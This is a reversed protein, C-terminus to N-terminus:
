TRNPHRDPHLFWGIPRSLLMCLTITSEELHSLDPRGCKGMWVSPILPPSICLRAYRLLPSCLLPSCLRASCLLASCLLASALLASCLRASCLLASGETRDRRLCM